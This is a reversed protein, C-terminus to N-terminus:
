LSKSSIIKIFNLGEKLLIMLSFNTFIITSSASVEIKEMCIKMKILKRILEIEFVFTNTRTSQIVPLIERKLGKIGAQTDTIKKSLFINNLIMLGKSIGKRTFPLQKFYDKNRSGYVFLCSPNITLLNVIEIIPDTGFPFDIDTYIIIDGTSAECGKRIAAGKGKNKFNDIFIFHKSSTLLHLNSRDLHTSGDNSIVFQFEYDPLKSILLEAQHLVGAVWDQAPNYCPLVISIRM